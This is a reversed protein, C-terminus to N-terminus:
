NRKTGVLMWASDLPLSGYVQNVTLHPLVTGQVASRWPKCPCEGVQLAGTQVLHTLPVDLIARVGYWGDTLQVQAQQGASSAAEAQQQQMYQDPNGAAQM